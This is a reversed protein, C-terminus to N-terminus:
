SYTGAPASAAAATATTATALVCLAPVLHQPSLALLSRFTNCLTSTILLRKTTGEVISFCNALLAYPVQAHM